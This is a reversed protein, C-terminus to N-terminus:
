RFICAVVSCTGDSCLVQGADCPSVIQITRTVTTRKSPISLDFVVFNVAFVTGVPQSTNVACSSIGQETFKYGAILMIRSLAPSTFNVTPSLLADQAPSNSTCPQSCHLILLGMQHRDSVCRAVFDTMDVPSMACASCSCTCTSQMRTVIKKTGPCFALCLCKHFWFHRSRGHGM